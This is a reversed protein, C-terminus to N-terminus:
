AQHEVGREVERRGGLAFCSWLVIGPIFLLEVVVARISEPGSRLLIVPVGAAPLTSAALRFGASRLTPRGTAIRQLAAVVVAFTLIAALLGWAGLRLWWAAVYHVTFVQDPPAGVLRGYDQYSNTSLADLHLRPQELVGYLSMHAALKESSRTSQLFVNGVHTINSSLSRAVASPSDLAGGRSIGITGLVLFGLAAVTVFRRRLPRRTTRSAPLYRWRFWGATVAGMMVLPVARNGLIANEALLALLMSSYAAWMLGRTRRRYARRAEPFALWLASGAALPYAVMFTLYQYMQIFRANGGRVIRTAEYLSSSSSTRVLYVFLGLRVILGVGTGVLLFVHGFRRSLVAWESNSLRQGATTMGRTLVSIVGLGGLVFVSYILLTSAYTGDVFIPFLRHELYSYEALPQSRKALLVPIAGALTWYPALLLSIAMAPEPAHKLLLLYGLAYAVLALTVGLLLSNVLTM